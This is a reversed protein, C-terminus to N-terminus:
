SKKMEKFLPLQAFYKQIDQKPRPEIGIAMLQGNWPRDPERISRHKIKNELLERELALLREENVTMLVIAHTNPPLDGTSSEGAAHVLQAAIVGLPLDRRVM